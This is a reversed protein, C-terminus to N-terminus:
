TIAGSPSELAFRYTSGAHAGAARIVFRGGPEPTMAIRGEPFDGTVSAATANPAWVRFVVGGNVPDVNAGFADPGPSTRPAATAGADDPPAPTATSGTPAAGPAASPDPSSPSPAGCAVLACAAAAYARNM